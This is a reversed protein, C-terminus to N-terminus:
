SFFRGTLKESLRVGEFEVFRIFLAFLLALYGARVASLLKAGGSAHLFVLLCNMIVILFAADVTPM